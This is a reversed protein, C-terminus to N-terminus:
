QNKFAELVRELITEQHLEAYYKRTTQATTHGVISGLTDMDLGMNLMLTTFTRRAVHTTVNIRTINAAIALGKLVRNYHQNTPVPLLFGTENCHESYKKLIADSVPFIPVFQTNRFNRKQKERPKIICWQGNILSIHEPKLRELDKYSLGTWCSFVFMDRIRSLTEDEITLAEITKLQAHTLFVIPKDEIKGRYTMLPNRTTWGNAIAYDFVAKYHRIYKVYTSDDYKKVTKFYSEIQRGFVPNLNDLAVVETKYQYRLFARMIRLMRGYRKFVTETLHGTAVEPKRYANYAEIAGLVHPAQQNWERKKFLFDILDQATFSRGERDLKYFLEDLDNVLKRLYATAHENGEITQTKSNLREGQKLRVDTSKPSSDKGLYRITMQVSPSGTRVRFRAIPVTSVGISGKKPTAAANTTNDNQHSM